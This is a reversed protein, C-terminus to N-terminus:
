LQIGHLHGKGEGKSYVSGDTTGSDHSFNCQESAHGSLIAGVEGFEQQAFAIDDVADLAASRKEVGIADIVQVLIRVDGTAIENEV